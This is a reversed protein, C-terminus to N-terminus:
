EGMTDQSRARFWASRLTSLNSYVVEAVLGAMAPRM